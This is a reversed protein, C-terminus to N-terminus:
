AEESGATLSKKIKKSWAYLAFSIAVAIIAVALGTYLVPRLLTAYDYPDFIGDYHLKESYYMWYATAIFATIWLFVRIAFLIKIKLVAKKQM